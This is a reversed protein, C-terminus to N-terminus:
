KWNKRLDGVFGLKIDGTRRKSTSIEKLLNEVVGLYGEGKVKLIEKRVVRKNNLNNLENIKFNKGKIIELLKLYIEDEFNRILLDIEYNKKLYYNLDNENIIYNEINDM